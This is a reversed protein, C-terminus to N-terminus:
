KKITVIRNLFNSMEDRYVRYDFYDEAIKRANKRMQYLANTDLDLIRKFVRVLEQTSLSSLLYGNVGDKLYLGIDGTDNTIVPTGVAMSEALKTPFGANSSRRLPRTFISFDSNRLVDQVKDQPIPGHVNICLRISNWLENDRNINKLVEPENPGYIDFLIRVEDKNIERLARFIPGLKEKGKGLSGAFVIHYKEQVAVDCRCNTGVVDLITPIRITPLGQALYHQSLLRSIAVVGSLKKNKWRIRRIHELYYPNFRGFKFISRDFWECQEIVYPVMLEKATNLLKDAVYLISSSFILDVHNDRIYKQVAGIFPKSTGIGCLTLISQPATVYDISYSYGMLGDFSSNTKSPLAVIHVHCGCDCLLKTLNLARSSFASGYPFPANMVFIVNM